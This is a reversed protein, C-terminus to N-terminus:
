PAQFPAPLMDSVNWTASAVGPEDTSWAFLLEKASEITLTNVWKSFDGSGEMVELKTKSVPPPQQYGPDKKGQSRAFQMPMTLCTTIIALALLAASQKIMPKM